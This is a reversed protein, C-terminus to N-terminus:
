LLKELLFQLGPTDMGRLFPQFLSTEGGPFVELVEIAVAQRRRGPLFEFFDGGEPEQFFSLIEQDHPVGPDPLGVDGDSEAYLSAQFALFNEEGIRGVKENFQPLAGARMLQGFVLVPEDFVVEDDDVFQAVDGEIFLPRLEEEIEERGPALGFREDDGAIQGELPPVLDELIRHEGVGHDVTEYVLRM